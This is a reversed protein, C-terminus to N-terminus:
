NLERLRQEAATLRAEAAALRDRADQVVPAPARSTFSENALQARLREVEARAQDRQKELNAREASVDFLGALPVIVQARDLVATAVGQSPADKPSDVIHLPRVRALAEVAPTHSRLEQGGAVYCEIWRGADIGRERRINRVARVVDLVLEM